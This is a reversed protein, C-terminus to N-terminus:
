TTTMRVRSTWEIITAAAGTVRLEVEPGNAVFTADWGAVDERAARLAAVSGLLACSGAALAGNALASGGAGDSITENDVFAGIIDRLTLTGTTGGDSDAIIRATAGSTAGTLVQGLTFNATQTDYALTSGARKASVAIHYEGTNAGNRQNGLVVGELYVVQGPELEGTAWAKTVTADTTIGTSAGDHGATRRIIYQGAGAITVGASEVCDLLLVPNLPVTLTFAVADIRMAEIMVNLLTDRLAVAGSVMQGGSIRAGHVTNELRKATNDDDRIDINTTNLSWASKEITTQRAGNIRLAIGSNQAFDVGILHNSRCFTDEYSLDVGVGTCQTVRGGIWLNNAFEGGVNGDLAATDGHLKAGSVCNVLHLDRWDGRTGGRMHVGTEFRKIEVARMVTEARNNAAVGISAPVLSIGDITLSVLGSRDGGLTIVKGNTQSELVTVARGQGVLRVGQPLTLSTFVIRGGPLFVDGGGIAAAAGVAAQLVTTNGSTSGSIEGYNEVHISRAVVDHVDVQATSGVVTVLANSVDVDSASTLPNRAVGSRSGDVEFEIAQSCYVPQPLRGYLAGNVNLTLLVQPNPAQQTEGEDYYLSALTTTGARYVFIIAGAYNPQWHEFEPLARQATM